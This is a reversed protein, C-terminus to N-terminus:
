WIKSDNLHYKNIRDRDSIYLAYVSWELTKVPFPAQNFMCLYGESAM